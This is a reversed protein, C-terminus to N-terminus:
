GSRCSGHAGERRRVVRDTKKNKWGITAEEGIGAKLEKGNEEKEVGVITEDRKMDDGAKSGVVKEERDRKATKMCAARRRRSADGGSGEESRCRAHRRCCIAFDLESSASSRYAHVAAMATEPARPSSTDKEWTSGRGQHHRSINVVLSLLTRLLTSFCIVLSVPRM